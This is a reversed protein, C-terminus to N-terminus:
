AGQYLKGQICHAKHPIGVKSKTVNASELVTLPGIRSFNCLSYIGERTADSILAHSYWFDVAGKNDEM